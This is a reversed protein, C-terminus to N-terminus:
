LEVFSYVYMGTTFMQGKFLLVCLLRGIIQKWPYANHRCRKNKTMKDDSVTTIHYSFVIMLLILFNNRFCRTTFQIKLYGCGNYCWNRYIVSRVCSVTCTIVYSQM